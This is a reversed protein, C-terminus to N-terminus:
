RPKKAGSDNNSVRLYKENAKGPFCDYNGKPIILKSAGQELCAELAKRIAPVADEGQMLGYDAANIVMEKEACAFLSLTIGFFLMSVKISFKKKM